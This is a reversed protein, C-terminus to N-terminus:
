SSSTMSENMAFIFSAAACFSSSPFVFPGGSLFLMFFFFYFLFVPAGLRGSSRGRPRRIKQPNDQKKRASNNQEMHTKVTKRADGKRQRM